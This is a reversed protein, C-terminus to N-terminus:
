SSIQIENQRRTQNCIYEGFTYAKESIAMLATTSFNNMQHCLILPKQSENPSFDDGFQQVGDFISQNM